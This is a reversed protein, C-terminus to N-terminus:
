TDSCFMAHNAKTRKRASYEGSNELCNLDVCGIWKWFAVYICERLFSFYSFSIPFGQSTTSKKSSININKALSPKDHTLSTKFHTIDSGPPPPTPQPHLLGAILTLPKTGARRRVSEVKNPLFNGKRFSLKRMQWIITNAKAGEPGM